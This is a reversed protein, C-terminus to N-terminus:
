NNLYDIIQEECINKTKKNKKNLDNWTIIKEITQNINWKPKWKLNKMAKNSNLKLIKTEKINSKKVVIKKLNKIKKVKKIIQNVKIFNNMRPGFNWAHNSKM